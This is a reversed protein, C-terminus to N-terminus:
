CSAALRTTEADRRTRWAGRAMRWTGHCTHVRTRQACVHVNARTDERCARMRTCVGGQRVHGRACAGKACTCAGLHAEGLAPAREAEVGRRTLQEFVSLDKALHEVLLARGGRGGLRRWRWGGDRDALSKYVAAVSPPAAARVRGRLSGLIAGGGLMAGLIAPQGQTSARARESGARLSDHM